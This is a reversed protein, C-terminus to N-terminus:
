RAEFGLRIVSSAKDMDGTRDQVAVAIAYTKKTEFVTDDAHGTDLKRMFEVTWRGQEWKGKARVDAASGSPEGILYAPMKDARYETPAPLSTQTSTGADDPRQIWIPTGTRSKYEKAKGAPQTTSYRHTKDLAYGVPDSRTAKWTWLDWAADVSSLMDATFPGNLEFALAVADEQEKGQEYTKKEAVWVWPKHMRDDRTADDWSVLFAIHSDTYVAKITVKASTGIAPGWVGTVELNLPKALKWADDKGAGDIIPKTKVYRAMLEPFVDRGSQPDAYAPQAFTTAIGLAALMTLIKKM